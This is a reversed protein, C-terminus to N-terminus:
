GFLHILATQMIHFINTNKCLLINNKEVLKQHLWSWDKDMDIRFFYENETDGMSHLVNAMNGLCCNRQSTNIAVPMPLSHCFEFMPEAIQMDFTNSRKRPHNLLQATKNKSTIAQAMKSKISQGVSM